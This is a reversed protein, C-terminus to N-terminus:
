FERLLFARLISLKNDDGQPGLHELQGVTEDADVLRVIAGLAHCDVRTHILVNKRWWGRAALRERSGRGTLANDDVLM